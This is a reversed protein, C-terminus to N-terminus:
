IAARHAFSLWFHIFVFHPNDSCSILTHTRVTDLSPDVQMKVPM